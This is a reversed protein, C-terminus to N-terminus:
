SLKFINKKRDIIKLCGEPTIVGIDGTHVWGDQDLTEKTQEPCKYYGKFCNYGKYCMEGRPAPNGHEDVDDSTYNMDPVDVLKFDCSPFPPGVHGSSPDTTFSLSSAAAGETQGFGEHIQCCFAVKLFDLVEKAIPASGTIMM